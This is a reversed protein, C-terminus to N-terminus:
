EEGPTLPGQIGLLHNAKAIISQKWSEAPSPPVLRLLQAISAQYHRLDAKHAAESATLRAQHHEITNNVDYAAKESESLRAQLTKTEENYADAIRCHGRHHAWAEDRQQELRRITERQEDKVRCVQAYAWATPRRWVTGREDVWTENLESQAKKTEDRSARLTDELRRITERQAADSVAIDTLAAHFEPTGKPYTCVQEERADFEQRTMAQADLPPICSAEAAAVEDAEGPYSEDSM